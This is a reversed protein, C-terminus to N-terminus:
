FIFHFVGTICGGGYAPSRADSPARAVSSSARARLLYYWIEQKWWHVTVAKHARCRAREGMGLSLLARRGLITTTGGMGGGWLPGPGGTRPIVCVVGWSGHVLIWRENGSVHPGPLRIISSILSMLRRCLVSLLRGSLYPLPPNEGSPECLRMVRRRAGEGFIKREGESRTTTGAGIRRKGM